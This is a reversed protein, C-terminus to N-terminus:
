LYVTCPYSATLLRFEILAPAERSIYHLCVPQWQYSAVVWRVVGMCMMHNVILFPSYKLILYSIPRFMNVKNGCQNVM